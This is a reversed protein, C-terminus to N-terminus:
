ADIPFFSNPDSPPFVQLPPLSAQANKRQLAMMALMADNFQEGERGTWEQEGCGALLIAGDDTNQVAWDIARARDPIVEVRGPSVTGGLVDMAISQVANPALDAGSLVIRSSSRDLVEGLRQRWRPTLRSNLDVVITAPGFGHVRLAHAAVAVQDPTTASDIFIPVDVSQSIRQMRGPISQLREIGAIANPVSFDFMWSVAVAALAARAVHDGPIKLTMPMLMNGVIALVQQEGGSRGLRKARVHEAADLGYSVTAFESKQAWSAAQADDANYLVVGHSKMSDLLGDIMGALAKCRPAGRLQGGRMGTVILVDFEVGEAVHNAMMPATLEIVAAPAGAEDARKMWKALRNAGPLNPAQRNCETSDSAGLSTYYAVAGGLHKLMSSVFLCTTTKAHSGVVGITLMRESPNGALAQCIRAYTQQTNDVLCQPVSVPLLREAVIAVAGRKIAEEAREHEDHAATRRPVFVDGPCCKDARDVCRLVRIDEAGVFVAQKLLGRLSIGRRKQKTEAQLDAQQEPDQASQDAPNNSDAPNPSSTSM